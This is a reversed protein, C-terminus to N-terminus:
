KLLLKNLARRMQQASSFGALEAVREKSHASDASLQLALAARIHRVYELPTIGAETQFLRTLHRPTVHAINALMGASWHAAPEALVANQARHVAAHVHNRFELLPSLQPDAGSRRMFVVLDQATALAIQPSTYREVLMLSLDIGATVGACTLVAGDEVFLRNQLPIASPEALKLLEFVDHHTTCRLGRLVGAHAAIVAGACVTALCHRAPDFHQRLWAAIPHMANLKQTAATSLGLVLVLAAVPLSAPLAELRSLHLGGSTRVEPTVGCFHQAFVERQAHRNALRFVEAPGALDLLTLEDAALLFTEIPKM